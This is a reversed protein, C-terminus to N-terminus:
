HDAFRERATTVVADSIRDLLPSALNWRQWHLAVDASRGPVLEVLTAEALREWSAAPLITAAVPPDAM